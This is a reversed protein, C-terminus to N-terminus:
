YYKAPIAWLRCGLFARKWLVVYMCAERERRPWGRGFGAVDAPYEAFLSSYQGTTGLLLRMGSLGSLCNINGVLDARHAVFVLEPRCASSASASICASVKNGKSRARRYAGLCVNTSNRREPAQRCALRCSAGTATIPPEFCVCAVVQAVWQRHSDASRLRQCLIRVGCFFGPRTVLARQEAVSM